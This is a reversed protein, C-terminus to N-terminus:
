VQETMREQISLLLCGPEWFDSGLDLRPCVYGPGWQKRLGLDFDIEERTPLTKDTPKQKNPNPQKQTDSPNQAASYPLGNRGSFFFFM